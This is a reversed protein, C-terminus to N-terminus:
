EHLLAALTSGYFLRKQPCINKLGFV